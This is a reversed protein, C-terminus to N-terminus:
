VISSKIDNENLIKIKKAVNTHKLSRIFAEHLQWSLPYWAVGRAKPSIAYILVVEHFRKMMLKKHIYLGEDM